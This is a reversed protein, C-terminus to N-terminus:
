DPPWIPYRLTVLIIPFISMWLLTTFDVFRTTFIYMLTQWHYKVAIEEGFGQIKKFVLSSWHLVGLLLNFTFITKGFNEFVDCFKIQIM